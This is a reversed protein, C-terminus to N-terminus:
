QEGGQFVYAELQRLPYKLLKETILYEDHEKIDLGDNYCKRSIVKGWRTEEADEGDKLLGVCHMVAGFYISNLLVARNSKNNRCLDLKAKMDPSVKIQVKDDTPVVRWEHGVIADDAVLTFVSSLPKFLDRDVYVRQPPDIALVAGKEYAFPGPGFEPNVWSCQFDPIDEIAAVYAYIDVEGRLSGTPFAVEFNAEASVAVHRFYTDRCAFAVVYSARKKTIEEVLEDVSLLFAVSASVEQGDSSPKLDVIVQMEGDLFDDVDPRLVPYPFARLADFQM